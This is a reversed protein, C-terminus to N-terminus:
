FEFRYSQYFCLGLFGLCGVVSLLAGAKLYPTAYVLQVQHEGKALELAMGFTNAQKIEAEEGDVYAKWGASYPISLFLLRKERLSINGRIRNASFHVGELVERGRNKTYELQKDMPQSVVSLTDYAYNGKDPFTLEIETVEKETDGLNVIFDKLGAYFNDKNNKLILVGRENNAKFQIQVEHEEGYHYTLGAFIVYLEGPVIGQCHLTIRAGKEKVQIQNEGVTVGKGPELRVSAVQHSFLPKVEPLSSDDVVCGQLLAQQKEVASFKEYVAGPIYGDYTYGIPLADKGQYVVCGKRSYVPHNRYFRPVKGKQGQGAVFYKVSSVTELINRSDLGLYRHGSTINLQMEKLFASVAPQDLSFYYSIGHRKLAMAGNISAESDQSPISVRRSKDFRVDAAEEMVQCVSSEPSEDFLMEYCKGISIFERQYDGGAPTYLYFAQFFACVGFLVFTLRNRGREKLFIDGALFSFCCVALLIVRAVIEMEQSLWLCVAGYLVTFFVMWKKGRAKLSFFDGKVVIYAVLMSYGFVWRNTRYSFGNFVHGVFPICLFITMLPFFIKLLTNKGKSCYLSVVALFGIASYGLCSYYIGVGSTFNLVLEEYYDNTYFAPLYFDVGVRDAQFMSNIVPLLIVAAMTLGLLSYGVFRGLLCLLAKWKIGRFIELYRAVAYLVVLIGLMYLFYFNSIGSLAVMAIYLHPKKGQYVRDVGLLLLPLYIMPNMFYPHRIAARLVYGCFCYCASGLLVSCEKNGHSLSFYSFSLGALYIRLLVLGVYLYETYAKPVFASFLTLPDGVVYYHLTTIIDSGYGINIDWLPLEFHHNFFLNKMVGRIYEGYYVLAIYHQSYGDKKWVFGKQYYVFWLFTIAFLVVMMFSYQLLYKGTIIRTKKHNQALDGAVITYQMSLVGDASGVPIQGQKKGRHWIGM